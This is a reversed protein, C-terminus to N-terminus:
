FSQNKASLQKLYKEVKTEKKPDVKVEPQKTDTRKPPEPAKQKSM